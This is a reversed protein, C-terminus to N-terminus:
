AHAIRYALNRPAGREEMLRRMVERPAQGEARWAAAQRELDSPDLAEPAGAGIVLVV